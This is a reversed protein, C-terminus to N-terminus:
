NFVGKLFSGSCILLFAILGKLFNLKKSGKENGGVEWGVWGGSWNGPSGLKQLFAGDQIGRM